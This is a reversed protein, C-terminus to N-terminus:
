RRVRDAEDCEYLLFGGWVYLLGVLSWNFGGVRETPQM